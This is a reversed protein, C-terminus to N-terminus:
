PQYAPDIDRAVLTYLDETVAPRVGFWLEFGRVAQHLLMGLGPVTSIGNDKASHLFPTLLPVYNIDTVVAAKPLSGFDIALGSDDAIGASTTNVVLDVAPLVSGVETLSLTKISCDLVEAVTKARSVTRNALSIEGVESRLLEDIIARASGGAGLVLVRKGAFDYGPLRWRINAVFGEGDTSTAWTKGDRVYVTNISGTKRGRDDVHDVLNAAVEKHPLTINCGVYSSTPLGRLFAPLDSPSVELKEYTGNIGLSKLWYGHILPSRSHKIPFGIVCSKIM